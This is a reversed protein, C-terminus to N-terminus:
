TVQDREHQLTQVQKAVSEYRDDEAPLQSHPPVLEVCIRSSKELETCDLTGLIPEVTDQSSPDELPLDATEQSDPATTSQKPQRHM